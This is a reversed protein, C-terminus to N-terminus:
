RRFIFLVVVPYGPLIPQSAIFRDIAVHRAQLRTTPTAEGDSAEAM